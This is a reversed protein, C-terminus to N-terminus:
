RKTLKCRTIIIEVEGNDKFEIHVSDAMIGVLTLETDVDCDGTLCWYYEEMEERKGCNLLKNLRRKEKDPMDPAMARFNIEYCGEIESVRVNMEQTGLSFFYNMLEDVIKAVRLKDHKM